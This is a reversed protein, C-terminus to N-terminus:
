QELVTCQVLGIAGPYKEDITKLIGDEGNIVVNQRCLVAIWLVHPSVNM